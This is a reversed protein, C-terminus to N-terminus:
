GRPFYYSLVAFMLQLLMIYLVVFNYWDNNNMFTDEENDQSLHHIARLRHAPINADNIAKTLLIKQKKITKWILFASAAAVVLTKQNITCAEGDRLFGNAVIM